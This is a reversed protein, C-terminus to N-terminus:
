TSANKLKETGNEEMSIIIIIHIAQIASDNETLHYCELKQTDSLFNKKIKNSHFPWWILPSSSSGFLMFFYSSFFLFFSFKNNRSSHSLFTSAVWWNTSQQNLKMRLLLLPPASSFLVLKHFTHFHFFSFRPFFASFVQRSHRRASQLHYLKEKVCKWKWM